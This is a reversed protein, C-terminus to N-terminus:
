PDNQNRSNTHRNYEIKPVQVPFVFLRQGHGGCGNQSAYQVQVEESGIGNM